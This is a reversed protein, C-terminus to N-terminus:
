ANAAEDASVIRYLLRRYAEVMQEWSFEAASRRGAFGLQERRAASGALMQLKAAIDAGDREIFWGNGGDVLLDTVGNVRTVLLPLGSAAAEYTVLSFTEYASPLLFADGACYFPAPDAVLGTFVVRDGVGLREALRQYSELDGKGVVLLKWDSTRAIGEIAFRLGKGDWEGGVFVAVLEDQAIAYHSRTQSRLRPDPRFRSVNVGNPVTAVDMRPFHERLEATVGESVGILRRSQPRRYCLREGVLSMAQAIRANLRYVVNSRMSRLLGVRATAHHCLHVASFDARNIVIAGTTLVTGSRHRWTLWSGALFFWPYAIAFPRAPGPVRVSELLPHAAMACTRAIVTVHCGDSLLGCILESLVREM